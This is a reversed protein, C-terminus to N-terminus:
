KSAGAIIKEWREMKEQDNNEFSQSKANALDQMKGTFYKFSHPTWGPNNKRQRVCTERIVECQQSIPIGMKEWKEAEAMDNVGGIFRSAGAIGDPLGMAELLKERATDVVSAEADTYPEPEPEPITKNPNDSVSGSAKGIDKNENSKPRGGKSGNERNKAIKEQTNKWIKLLNKQTIQGDEFILFGALRVKIKRWKSPTLGLIRANDKDHDPVWGNRRWMASLLLLYAGHEETSLHTTDALYADWFMPMSPAQSM